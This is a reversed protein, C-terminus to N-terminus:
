GSINTMKKTRIMSDLTPRRRHKKEIGPRSSDCIIDSLYSFM